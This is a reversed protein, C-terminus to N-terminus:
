GNRLFGVRSSAFPSAARSGSNGVRPSRPVSAQRTGMAVGKSNKFSRLEAEKQLLARDRIEVELHLAENNRIVAAHNQDIHLKKLEAPQSSAKRRLEEVEKELSANIQQLEAARHSANQYEQIFYQNNHETSDAKKVAKQEAARADELEQVLQAIRADKPDGTLLMDNRMGKFRASLQDYEDSKTKLREEVSAKDQKAGELLKELAINHRKLSAIQRVLSEHDTQRRIFAEELELLEKERQKLLSQLQRVEEPRSLRARKAPPEGEVDLPRKSYPRPSNSAPRSEPEVYSVLDHVSGISPLPWEGRADPDTAQLFLAVQEAADQLPPTPLVGRGIDGRLQAICTVLAHLRKLPDLQPSLCRDVHESAGPIVLYLIPLTSEGPGIGWRKHRIQTSNLCGDLCIIAAAPPIVATSDKELITVKLSGRVSQMDAQRYKDPYDYNLQIGRIFKEIIDLLRQRKNEAVILLHLGSERMRDFLAALFTFKVCSEKDWSAQTSASTKEPRLGSEDNILDVHNEVAGLTELLEHIRSDVHLSSEPPTELFHKVFAERKKLEGRYLDKQRGAVPLPVIFENPELQIDEVLLSEEAESDTSHEVSFTAPPLPAPPATSPSPALMANRLSTPRQSQPARDPITSPSRTGSASSTEVFRSHQIAGVSASPAGHGHIAHFSHSNTEDMIPSLEGDSFDLPTPLRAPVKSGLTDFSHTPVKDVASSRERVFASSERSFDPSYEPSPVEITPHILPSIPGLTSYSGIPVVQAHQEEETPFYNLAPHPASSPHGHELSRVFGAPSPSRVRAEVAVKREQEASSETQTSLPQASDQSDPIVVPRSIEPAPRSKAKRAKKIVRKKKGKGKKLWDKILNDNAFNKPEWTPKWEEGTAPDVGEWAIQYKGNKEALIERAAFEPADPAPLEPVEWHFEQLSAARETKIKKAIASLGRTRPKDPTDEDKKRKEGAKKAPTATTNVPAPQTPEVNAKPAKNAAKQQNQKPRGRKAAM